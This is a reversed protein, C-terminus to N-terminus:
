SQIEQFLTQKPLGAIFQFGLSLPFTKKTMLASPSPSSNTPQCLVTTELTFLSKSPLGPINHNHILLKNNGMCHIYLQEKTVKPADDRPAQKNHGPKPKIATTTTTSTTSTTPLNKNTPPRRVNSNHSRNIWANARPLPNPHTSGLTDALKTLNAATEKLTTATAQVSKAENQLKSILEAQQAITAKTAEREKEFQAITEELAKELQRIRAQADEPQKGPSLARITEAVMSNEPSQYDEQRKSSEEDDSTHDLDEFKRLKPNIPAGSSVSPTQSADTLSMLSNANGEQTNPGPTANNALDSSM